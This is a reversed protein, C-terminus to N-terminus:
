IDDLMWRYHALYDLKRSRVEMAIEELYNDDTGRFRLGLKGTHLGTKLRGTLGATNDPDFLEHKDVNLYRVGNLEYRYECGELLQISETGPIQSDNCDLLVSPHRGQDKPRRFIRFDGVAIGDKTRLQFTANSTEM